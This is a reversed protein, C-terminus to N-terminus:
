NYFPDIKTKKESRLTSKEDIARGMVASRMNTMKEGCSNLVFVAYIEVFSWLNNLNKVFIQFKEM